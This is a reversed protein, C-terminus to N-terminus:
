DILNQQTYMLQMFSYISITQSCTFLKWAEGRCETSQLVKSSIFISIQHKLISILLLNNNLLLICVLSPAKM